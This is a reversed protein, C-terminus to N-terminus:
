CANVIWQNILTRTSGVYEGLGYGATNSVVRVSTAVGFRNASCPSLGGICGTVRGPSNGNGTENLNEFAFTFNGGPCNPM